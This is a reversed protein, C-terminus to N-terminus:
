GVAERLRKHDATLEDRVIAHREREAVVDEVASMKRVVQPAGRRPRGARRHEAVLHAIRLPVADDLEIRVAARHAELFLRLLRLRRVGHGAEIEVVVLHDGNGGSEPRRHASLELDGVDVAGIELAPLEMDLLERAADRPDIGARVFREDLRAIVDLRDFLPLPQHDRAELLDGKAHTVDALGVQKPERPRHFRAGVSLVQEAHDLVFDLDTRTMGVSSGSTRTMSGSTWRSPRPYKRSVYWASFYRAQPM